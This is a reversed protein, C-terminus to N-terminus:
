NKIWEILPCWEPPPDKLEGFDAYYDIIRAKNLSPYKM